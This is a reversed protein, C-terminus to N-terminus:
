RTKNIAEINIINGFNDVCSCAQLKFQELNYGLPNNLLDAYRHITIIAALIILSSIFMIILFVIQIIERKEM